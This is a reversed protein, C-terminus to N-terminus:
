RVHSRAKSLRDVRSLEARVSQYVTTMSISEMCNPQHECREQYCGLCDLDATVKSGLGYMEIEHPSTPGFLGVVRRNLGLAMHLALTDGTVVVDCLGVLAAFRPLPNDSGTDVLAGHSAQLLFRRDEDERKGCLLLVTANEDRVLEEGLAHFSELPWRKHQWRGGAGLNLGVVPRDGRDPVKEDLFQRAYQQEEEPCNVIIHSGSPDLGLIRFMHRQYTQRNDKKLRDSHSMRYWEEAEPNYRIVEGRSGLGFGLKKKAQATSAFALSDPGLDLNICLDFEEVQLRCATDHDLGWIEGIYPNNELLLVSEERVLWSIRGDPYKRQLPRLLATTRLVDGMAGLKIFLIREQVLREYQCGECEQGTAKHHTCPRDSRYYFCQENIVMTTDPLFSLLDGHPPRIGKRLTIGRRAGTVRDDRGHTTPLIGM